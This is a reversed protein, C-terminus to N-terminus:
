PEVAAAFQEMEAETATGTVVTTVVAGRLVLSIVGRDSRSRIVWSHTGIKRTGAERGDTVQRSEWAATADKAQQVGAYHGSPTTFTLHWTPLDDTDNQVDAATATWGFPLSPNAPAFGIQPRAAAVASAIDLTREPVQNPRPVLLILVLVIGVIVAMSLLMDRPTTNLSRRQRVEGSTETM